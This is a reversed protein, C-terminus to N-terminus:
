FNQNVPSIENEPKFGNFGEDGEFGNNSDPPDTMELSDWIDLEVKVAEGGSRGVVVKVGFVDGANDRRLDEEPLSESSGRGSGAVQGISGPFSTRISIFM